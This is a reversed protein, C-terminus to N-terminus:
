NVPYMPLYFLFGLLRLFDFLLDGAAGELFHGCFPKLFVLQLKGLFVSGFESAIEFRLYEGQNSLLRNSRQCRLIKKVNDTFGFPQPMIFGSM